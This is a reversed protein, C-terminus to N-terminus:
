YAKHQYAFKVFDILMDIPGKKMLEFLLVSTKEIAADTVQFEESEDHIWVRIVYLIQAWLVEYYRDTIIPRSAIEETELGSGIIDKSYTKLQARMGDMFWPRFEKRELPECRLMVYSRNEKLIEIFTYLFSLWKEYTSYHAYNEDQNLVQEVKSFMERWIDKELAKFSGYHSYFEREEMGLQECFAYVTVPTEGTRMLHLKFEKRLEEKPNIQSETTM